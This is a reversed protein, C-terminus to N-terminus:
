RSFDTSHCHKRVADGLLNCQGQLAALTVAQRLIGSKGVPMVQMRSTILQRTLALPLLVPVGGMGHCELSPAM